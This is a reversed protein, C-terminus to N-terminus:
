LIGLLGMGVMGRQGGVVAGVIVCEKSEGGHRVSVRRGRRRRRCRRGVELEYDIIGQFDVFLASPLIQKRM